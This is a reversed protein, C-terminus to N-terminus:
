ALDYCHDYSTELTDFCPQLSRKHPCDCKSCMERRCSPCYNHLTKGHKECQPMKATM